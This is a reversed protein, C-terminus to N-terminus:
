LRKGPRYHGEFWDGQQKAQERRAKLLELVDAQSHNIHPRIPLPHPRYSVTMQALAM